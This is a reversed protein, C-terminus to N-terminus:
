RLHLPSPETDIYSIEEIQQSIEERRRELFLLAQKRAYEIVEIPMPKVDLRYRVESRAVWVGARHQRFIRELEAFEDQIKGDVPRAILHEYYQCGEPFQYWVTVCGNDIRVGSVYYSKYWHFLSETPIDRLVIMDMPARQYDLDLEDAFRLLAALFRPRIDEGSHCFPKFEDQSLDVKRHAEAVIAVISAIGPLPSLDLSIASESPQKYSELIIKRTLEHHHERVWKETVELREEQMGLDHVYASALLIYVELPALPTDSKMLVDTLDNLNKIVRDSHEISHDTFDPHASQKLLPHVRARVNALARHLDPKQDKLWYILDM